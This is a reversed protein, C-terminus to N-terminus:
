AVKAKLERVDRGLATCNRELESCRRNVLVIAENEIEARRTLLQEIRALTARQQLAEDILHGLAACVAERSQPGM